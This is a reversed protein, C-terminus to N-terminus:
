HDGCHDCGGGLGVGRVGVLRDCICIRLYLHLAESADTLPLAQMLSKTVGEMLRPLFRGKFGASADLQKSFWGLNFANYEAGSSHLTAQPRFINHISILDTSSPAHCTTRRVQQVVSVLLEFLVSTAVKEFDGLIAKTEPSEQKTQFILLSRLFLFGVAGGVREADPMSSLNPPTM